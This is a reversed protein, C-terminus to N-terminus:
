FLIMKKIKVFLIFLIIKTTTIVINVIRFKKKNQIKNNLNKFSYFYKILSVLNIILFLVDSKLILVFMLIIINLITEIM